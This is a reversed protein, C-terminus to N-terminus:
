KVKIKAPNRKSAANKLWFVGYAAVAFILLLLGIGIINKTEKDLQTLDVGFLNLDQKRQRDYHFDNSTSEDRNDENDQMGEFNIEGSKIEKLADQLQSMEYELAEKNNSQFLEGWKELQILEKFEADMSPISNYSKYKMLIEM